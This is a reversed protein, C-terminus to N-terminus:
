QGSRSASIECTLRLRGPFGRAQGPCADVGHALRVEAGQGRSGTVGRGHGPEDLALAAQHAAQEARDVLRPGARRGDGGRDLVLQPDGPIQQGGEITLLGVGQLGDQAMRVQPDPGHVAQLLQVPGPGPWGPSVPIKLVARPWRPAAAAAAAARAPISARDRDRDDVLATWRGM